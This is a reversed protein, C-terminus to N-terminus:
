KEGGTGSKLQGFVREHRERLGLMDSEYVMNLYHMDWEECWIQGCTSCTLNLYFEIEGDIEFCVLERSCQDFEPDDSFSCRLDDCPEEDTHYEM